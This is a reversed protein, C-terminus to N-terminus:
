SDHNSERCPFTSERDRERQRERNSFMWVPELARGSEYEISVPSKKESSLAALAHLECLASTIFEYSRQRWDVM